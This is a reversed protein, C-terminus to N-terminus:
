KLSVSLNMLDTSMRFFSSPNSRKSTFFRSRRFFCMVVRLFAPFLRGFFLLILTIM